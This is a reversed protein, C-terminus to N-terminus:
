GKGPDHIFPALTNAAPSIREGLGIGNNSPNAKDDRISAIAVRLGYIEWAAIHEKSRERM